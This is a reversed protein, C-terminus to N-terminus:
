TPRKEPSMSGVFSGDREVADGLTEDIGVAHLAFLSGAGASRLIILCCSSVVSSSALRSRTLGHGTRRHGLGM